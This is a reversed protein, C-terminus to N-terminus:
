FDRKEVLRKGLLYYVGIWLCSVGVYLWVNFDSTKTIMNGIAKLIPFPLLQDSSQLPLFNGVPEPSKWNILGRVMNEIIFSYLFFMGIALGSRRLWFALLAAFGLYNVTYIFFFLVKEWGGDIGSFGGVSLGAVLGILVMFVTALVSGALVLAVKGHFFDMRSWGDIVNQRHTRFTYENSILIIMLISLFMVFIGAWFGLNEWVSPFSYAQSLINFSGAGMSVMGNYIGWNWLPLLVLFLITLVRFTRYKKLKLWEISLLKQM